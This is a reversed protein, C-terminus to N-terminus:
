NRAMRIIFMLGFMAAGLWWLFLALETTLAVYLLKAVTDLPLTEAASLLDLGFLSRLVTFLSLHPWDGTLFRGVAQCALVLLCGTWSLFGLSKLM